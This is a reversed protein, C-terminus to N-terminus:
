ALPQEMSEVVDEAEDIQEDDDEQIQPVEDFGEVNARWRMTTCRNQGQLNSLMRDTRLERNAVRSLLGFIEEFRERNQLYPTVSDWLTTAGEMAVEAFYENLSWIIGRAKVNTWFFGIIPKFVEKNQEAVWQMRCFLVVSGVPEAM